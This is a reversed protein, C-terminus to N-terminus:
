RNYWDQSSKIINKLEALEKASSSLLSPERWTYTKVGDEVLIRVFRRYPYKPRVSCLQKVRYSYAFFPDIAKIEELLEDKM